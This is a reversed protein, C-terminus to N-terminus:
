TRIWRAMRRAAASIRPTYAMVFCLLDAPAAVDIPAAEDDAGRWGTEDDAIRRRLDALCKRGCGAALASGVTQTAMPFSPLTQTVTPLASMPWCMALVM